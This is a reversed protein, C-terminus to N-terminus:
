RAIYPYYTTEVASSKETTYSNNDVLEIAPNISFDAM